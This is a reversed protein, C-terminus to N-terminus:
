ATGIGKVELQRGDGVEITSDIAQIEIFKERMCCIHNSAGSDLFWIEKAKTNFNKM